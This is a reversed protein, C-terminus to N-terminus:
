KQAGFPQAPNLVRRVCPAPRTGISPERSRRHHGRYIVLNHDLNAGSERGRDRVHLM